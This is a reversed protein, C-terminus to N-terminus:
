PSAAVSPDAALEPDFDVTALIDHFIGDYAAEDFEDSEASTYLLLVYGRDASPVLAMNCTSAIWGATTDVTAPTIPGCDPEGAALEAAWADPAKGALPQSAILLFLHGAYAEDFLVDAFRDDFIPVESTTWSETAPRDVWGAPYSISIGNIASTFRESIAPTAASARSSPVASASAATSPSPSAQGGPGSSAGAGLWALGIAGVAIVAVVAAALKANTNMIPFRWPVPILVRRQRTLHVAVLADDLVRDALLTPGDAMYAKAIREFDRENTM